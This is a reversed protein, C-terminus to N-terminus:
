SKGKGPFQRNIETAMKKMPNNTKEKNLQLKRLNQIYIRQQNYTKCIDKESRHISKEIQAHYSKMNM